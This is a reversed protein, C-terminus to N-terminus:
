TKLCQLDCGSAVVFAVTNGLYGEFLWCSKKRGRMSFMIEVAVEWGLVKAEQLSDRNTEKSETDKSLCKLFGQQCVKQLFLTRFLHICYLALSTFVCHEIAVKPRYVGVMRKKKPLFSCIWPVSDPQSLQFLIRSRIKPSHTQALGM